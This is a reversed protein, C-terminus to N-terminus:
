DGEDDISVQVLKGCHPCEIGTATRSRALAIAERAEDEDIGLEDQLEQLQDEEGKSLLGDGVAKQVARQFTRNRRQLETAFGSALIGAPLSIMGIGILAILGAFVRGGDTVPVVDGYGLTTMTVVAWWLAEPISGFAEPQETRELQYMGWAAMVLVIALIISVVGLVRSERRLVSLLVNLAPSYRALKFLRILRLARFVRLVLLSVAGEPLVLFVYFPLIALLDILGLPSLAWRLRSPRREPDQRDEVDVCSWLRLLYEVTFVAVSFVEFASFYRRYGTGIWAVTELMIAAVNALILTILALDVARSPFDDRSHAELLQATRRRLKRFNM